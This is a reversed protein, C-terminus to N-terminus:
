LDVRGAPWTPYTPTGCPTTNLPSSQETLVDVQKATGGRHAAKKRFQNIEDRFFLDIGALYEIQRQGEILHRFSVASHILMARDLRQQPRLQSFEPHRCPNFIFQPFDGFRVIQM